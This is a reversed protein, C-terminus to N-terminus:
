RPRGRPGSVGPGSGPSDGRPAPRALHPGRRGNTGLPRPGVSRHASASALKEHVRSRSAPTRGGVSGGFRVRLPQSTSAFRGDQIRVLRRWTPDSPSECCWRRSRPTVGCGGAAPPEVSVDVRKARPSSLEPGRLPRAPKAGVAGLSPWSADAVRPDLVEFPYRNGSGLPRSRYGFRERLHPKRHVLRAGASAPEQRKTRRVALRLRRFRGHVCPADPRLRREEEGSGPLRGFGASRLWADPASASALVGAGSSPPRGSDVQGAGSPSGAPASEERRRKPHGPRSRVERSRELATRGLANREQRAPPAGVSTPAGRPGVSTPGEPGTCSAPRLRGGPSRPSREPRLRPQRTGIPRAPRLRGAGGAGPAGVPTPAATTVVPNARGFGTRGQEARLASRGFGPSGTGGTPRGFDVRRERQLLVGVPTPGEQVGCLHASRPRRERRAAFNM